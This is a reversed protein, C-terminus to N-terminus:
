FKFNMKVMAKGTIGKMREPFAFAIKWANATMESLKGTGGVRNQLCLKFLECHNDNLCCHGQFNGDSEYLLCM